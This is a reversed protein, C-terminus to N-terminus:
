SLLLLAAGSLVLGAAINPKLPTSGPIISRLPNVNLWWGILAVGGLLAALAGAVQAFLRSRRAFRCENGITM